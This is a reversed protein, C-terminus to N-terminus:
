IASKYLTGIQLHKTHYKKSVRVKTISITKSKSGKLSLLHIPAIGCEILHKVKDKM